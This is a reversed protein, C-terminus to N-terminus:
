LWDVEYVKGNKIDEVSQMLKTGNPEQMLYTTQDIFLPELRNRANKYARTIKDSFFGSDIIFSSLDYLTKLSLEDELSLNVTDIDEFTEKELEDLLTNIKSIDLIQALSNLLAFEKKNEQILM